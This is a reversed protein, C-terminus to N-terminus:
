RMRRGRDGRRVGEIMRVFRRMGPRGGFVPGNFHVSRVQDSAQPVVPSGGGPISAAAGAPQPAVTMSGLRENFGSSVHRLMDDAWRRGGLRAARDNVPDDFGSPASAGSEASAGGGKTTERIRAVNALGQAAILAAAAINAPYPVTALANNVAAWTDIIAQAIAFAKHEGFLASAATLGATAATAIMQVRANAALKAAQTRKQEESQELATARREWKLRVAHRDAGLRDAEALEQEMERELQELRLALSEEGAEEARRIEDELIGAQVRASFEAVREAAERQKELSRDLSEDQLLEDALRFQENVANVDAGLRIAEAVAVDRARDLLERQLQLEEASGDAAAELRVRLIDDQVRREFETREAALKEAREREKAAKEAAAKEDEAMAARMAQDRLKALGAQKKEETQVASAAGRKWIESLIEQAAEAEPAVQDFGSRFAAGVVDAFDPAFWSRPDLAVRAARGIGLLTGAVSHWTLQLAPLISQVVKLLVDGVGAIEGLAEGVARKVSAWAAASKDLGDQTDRLRETMGSYLTIVEDILEANTKQEGNLKRLEIGLSQAAMRARGQMLNALTEAASSATQFGAESIDAALKTGALAADVDKTVRLLRAFAPITDALLAGGGAEIAELFARVRPLQVAADIGLATMQERLVGLGREVKAFETVAARGFALLAAGGFIRFFQRELGAAVKTTRSIEQGTKKAAKEAGELGEKAQKLGTGKLLFEIVGRVTLDAV